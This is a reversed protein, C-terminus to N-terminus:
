RRLAHVLCGISPMASTKALDSKCPICSSHKAGPGFSTSGRSAILISCPIDAGFRVFIEVQRYWPLHGGFKAVLIHALVGPGMMGWRIPQTPACPQVIKECSRCSKKLRATEVMKLKAATFDLIEPVDEDVLGAAGMTVELDDLALQFQKIEREIKERSPGFKQRQLRASRIKLAKSLAEYARASAMLRAMEECQAVIIAKPAASDTPLSDVSPLM